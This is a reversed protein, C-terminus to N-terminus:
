LAPVTRRDDSAEVTVPIPPRVPYLLAAVFVIMEFTNCQNLYTETFSGVMLYAVIALPWAAVIRHTVFVYRLARILAVLVTGVLLVLGLVGGDLLVELFSNHAHYPSWGGAQVVYSGLAAIGDASRFFANYGYGLIPRDAIANQLYPWFDARGTLNTGRGVATLLADPTVGAVWVLSALAGIAVVFAVRGAAGMKKSRMVMVCVVTVLAALMAGTATASQSGYLLLFCLGFTGIALWRIGAKSQFILLSSTLIGLAMAAALNNKEQFIGTWAGSGYFMRGHGPAGVVMALSVVALILFLVTLIVLCQRLTFYAVIYYAILATGILEIANKFTTMPDVSWGVSLLMYVLLLGLFVSKKVLAVAVTRVAFLRLAAILYLLSWVVEAIPSSLSEGADANHYKAIAPFVTTAILM